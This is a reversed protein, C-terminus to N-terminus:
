TYQRTDRLVSEPCGHPKWFYNHTRPCQVCHRANSSRADNNVTPTCRVTPTVEVIAKTRGQLHATAPSKIMYTTQRADAPIYILSHWCTYEFHFSTHLITSPTFNGLLGDPMWTTGCVLDDYLVASFDSIRIKFQRRIFLRFCFARSM